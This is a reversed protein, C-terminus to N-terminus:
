TIIMNILDSDTRSVLDIKRQNAESEKRRVDNLEEELDRVQRQLRKSQDQSKTEETRQNQREEM